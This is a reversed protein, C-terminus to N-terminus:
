PRGTPRTLVGSVTDAVGSMGTALGMQVGGGGGRGVGCGVGCGARGVGQQILRVMDVLGRAALSQMDGQLAHKPDAGADLLVRLLKLSGVHCAIPVLTHSHTPVSAGHHILLEVCPLQNSETAQILATDLLPQDWPCHETTDTTQQDAQQVRALM